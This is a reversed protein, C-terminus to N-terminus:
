VKDDGKGDTNSKKSTIIFNIFAGSILGIGFGIGAHSLHSKFFLFLLSLALAYIVLKVPLLFLFDKKGDLISSSIRSLLIFQVSGIIVGIVIFLYKM